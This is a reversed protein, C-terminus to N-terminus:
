KVAEPEACKGTKQDWISKAYDAQGQKYGDAYGRDYAKLKKKKGVYNGTVAGTLGGIAAGAVGNKSQHGIVGGTTAGIVGGTVTSKKVTSCGSLCVLGVLIYVANSVRM